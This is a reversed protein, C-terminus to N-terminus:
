SRRAQAAVARDEPGKGTELWEPSVRLARAISVLERPRQRLGSEINGIASQKVGAEDALRVQSWGIECRQEGIRSGISM